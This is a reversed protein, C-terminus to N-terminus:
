GDYIPNGRYGRSTPYPEILEITVGHNDVARVFSELGDARDLYIKNDELAIGAQKM